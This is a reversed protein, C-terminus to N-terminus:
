EVQNALTWDFDTYFEVGMMVDVVMDAIQFFEEPCHGTHGIAIVIIPQKDKKYLQRIKTIYKIVTVRDSPRPTYWYIVIPLFTQVQTLLLDFDICTQVECGYHKFMAEPIYIVDYNKAVILVKWQLQLM